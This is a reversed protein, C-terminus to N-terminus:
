HSQLLSSLGAPPRWKLAKRSSLGASVWFAELARRKSQLNSTAYRGTTAVSAHGLYDRIVILDVGAQLLAVACSHRLLHPWIRAPLQPDLRNAATAHRRLIYNVGHRSLARGRANRFIPEDPRPVIVRWQARIAAVTEPWLPCIREKNGKGHLRVAPMPGSVLDAHRVAISESVRAGTNYLFLLLAYDRCGQETRRNPVRLLSQVIAPDLSRPLMRPHLKAPISIVQFLQGAYDPCRRLAYACFGRLAALRANRTVIKNKRDHELHDLFKEVAGANIDSLSLQDVTVARAEAAYTFFLRLADRYASVTRPSTGRAHQLHERFYSEITTFLLNHARPKM